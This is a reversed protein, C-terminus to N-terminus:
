RNRGYGSPQMVKQDTETKGDAYLLQENNKSMELQEIFWLLLFERANYHINPLDSWFASLVIIYIGPEQAKATVAALHIPSSLAMSRSCAHFINLPLQGAKRYLKSVMNHHDLVEKHM